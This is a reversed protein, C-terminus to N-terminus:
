KKSVSYVLAIATILSALPILKSSVRDFKKGGSPPIYVIDNPYVRTDSLSTNTMDIVFSEKGRIIKIKTTKSYDTFGSAKAVLDALRINDASFLYIGARQVEGIITVENSLIRLNIIPNVVFKSYAKELLSKAENLTLGELKTIGIQPLNVEGNADIMLWKGTEEQVNYINHVSGVSLDEHGWISISIKDNPQLIKETSQPSDTNQKSSTSKQSDNTHSYLVYKNCSSFICISFSLLLLTRTFNFNDSKKFM